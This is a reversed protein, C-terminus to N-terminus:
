IIGLKYLIASMKHEKIRLKYLIVPMNHEKNEAQTWYSVKHKMRLKYRIASM